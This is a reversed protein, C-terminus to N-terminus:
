TAKLALLQSRLTRTRIFVLQAEGLAVADGNVLETDAKSLAGSNVFTGNLSAEDRIRWGEGTWTLSAHLKSVSPDDVKADCSTQRGVTFTQPARSPKFFFATLGRFGRLMILLEDLHDTSAVSVTAALSLQLAARKM